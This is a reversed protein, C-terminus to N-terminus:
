DRDPDATRDPIDIEDVDIANVPSLLAELAMSSLTEHELLATASETVVSWNGGLRQQPAAPDAAADTAM